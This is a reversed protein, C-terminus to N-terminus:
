ENTAVEMHAHPSNWHGKRRFESLAEIGGDAVIHCISDPTTRDYMYTRIETRVIHTGAKELEDFLDGDISYPSWV